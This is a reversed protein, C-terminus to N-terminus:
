REERQHKGLFEEMALEALKVVSVPPKWKDALDKLRDLLDQRLRWTVAKKAPTSKKTAM